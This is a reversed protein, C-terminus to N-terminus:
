QDRELRSKSSCQSCRAQIDEKNRRLYNEFTDWWRPKLLTIGSASEEARVVSKPRLRVKGSSPTPDSFVPAIREPFLRAPNLKRKSSENMQSTPTVRASGPGQSPTIIRYSDERYVVPEEKWYKKVEQEYKQWEEESGLAAKNYQPSDEIQRRSVAAGLSDQDKAAAFVRGAPLLYTLAALWGGSDIVLYHIKMTKHDFIVDAVDGLETGDMGHVKIGRVDHIEKSVAQRGITGYHTM